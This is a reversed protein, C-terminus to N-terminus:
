INLHETGRFEGMLLEYPRHPLILAYDKYLDNLLDMDYDSGGANDTAKMVRDFEYENPQLLLFQSSLIRNNFGLWYARPMAVFAPKIFFLEDM